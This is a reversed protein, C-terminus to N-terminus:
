ATDAGPTTRRQQRKNGVVLGAPGGPAGALPAIAGCAFSCAPGGTLQRAIWKLFNDLLGAKQEKATAARNPPPLASRLAPIFTLELVLAGLVGCGAFVGFHQVMVIGTFYLSFFTIAAILGATLMPPGSRVLSEVVATTSAQRPTLHGGESARAYEEYYRKLIQIAHGAALAMILIPTTSNIPDMHVGLIGMLGLAWVVSLVSTLLPLLMGQLSRFSWYQIAMIILLAIGFYIPMKKMHHELWYGHLTLGGLYIDVSADREREIIPGLASIMATFSPNDPDVKFDAIVAATKGDSSVLSGIYIPMAAVDARLREIEAPTQPVKELMQRVEMGDAAGQIRKVKRAAISVINHRIAQPLLEINQQIRQIKALVAPQYIDGNKPAIGIVTVNRGGFVKELTNTTRVYPHTQPAWHDPNSDIKLAGVRTVLFATLLLFFTIVAFRQTTIFGAYRRLITSEPSM